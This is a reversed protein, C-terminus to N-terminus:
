RKRGFRDFTSDLDVGAARAAAVIDEVPLSTPPPDVPIDLRDGLADITWGDPVAGDVEDWTIPVAVPANARPRLSLPVVVTSGPTNRLWDVFVRGKREKKLFELTATEPIATAVLGSLARSAIAVEGDDHVGDLRIWVHFGSSGTVLPFGDIGFDALVRRVEHVTRRVGDLDGESPDLDVVMWDPNSPRETTATWMHFTVTGQNALYAIDDALEVVPYTTTGGDNKPVEFRGISDPFHDSANKQMFGKSEVGNPFRQLTLPRGSLFVLMAEGVREYHDVLDAKTFGAKEFILKDPNSVEVMLRIDDWVTAVAAVISAL